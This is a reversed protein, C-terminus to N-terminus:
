EDQYSDMFELYKNRIDKTTQGAKGEGIIKGDIKIIANIKLSATLFVEKAQYLEEKSFFREEFDYGNEKIIKVVRARTCGPLIQKGTPCTIIKGEASVIFVNFSTGETISNCRDNYFIVDDFGNKEAEYKALVMPLLSIMKIECHMRRPDQVICCSWEPIDDGFCNDEVENIKVLMNPALNLKAFEHTRPACGRTFQLYIAGNQKKNNREIVNRIITLIETKSPYNNFYLKQFNSMLRDLHLEKDILKGNRLLIVEYFGDGYYYGADNVSVKAENEDLYDGNLFVVSM